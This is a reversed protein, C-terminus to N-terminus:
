VEVYPVAIADQGTKFHPPTTAKPLDLMAQLSAKAREAIVEDVEVAHKMDRLCEYINKLSIRKMHPCLNCPKVFEVGPNEVSVNDSMSCETILIAKKPANDKVYGAMAGTSGAFDAKAMVDPPCEPHTLIIADPHAARLDDIDDPTFQEHVECCGKWTLIKIDTQAAVNKALYEDPIMIVTDVGWQQAVAEVVQVANSSTCCIDSYAKVEASTNVYTVIPLDPYAAKITQVDAGTISSALSCGAEMDPILVTKEPSLIKATEAMFHVGAQVIVDEKAEAAVQALKLSDGTIDGVCNFIEPTMYNHALITAGREAKLRNIADILPAYIPWEMPTVVDKVQDYMHDVRAKVDEDYTLADANPWNDQGSPFTMGDMNEEQFGSGTKSWTLM